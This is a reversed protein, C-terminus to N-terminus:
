RVPEAAKRAAIALEMSPFTGLYKRGYRAEWGRGGSAKFVGVHGSKNNIQPERLKPLRRNAAQQKPTAWRCNGPEYNGAQDPYRDLTMGPPRPGMDALFNEFEQWRECVKIGRGGYYHYGTASPTRCRQIMNLWSKYEPSTGGRPSHGHKVYHGM